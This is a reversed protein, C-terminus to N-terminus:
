VDDLANSFANYVELLQNVTSDGAVFCHTHDPFVVIVFRLCGWPLALFVSQLSTIVNNTNLFNLVHKHVSKETVKGLTSLLSVPRYNKCDSLDDKILYQLSM